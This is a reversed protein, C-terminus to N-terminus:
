YGVSSKRHGMKQIAEVIAIHLDAQRVLAKLRPITVIEVNSEM